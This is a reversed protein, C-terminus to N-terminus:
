AARKREHFTVGPVPARAGRADADALSQILAEFAEPQRVVYHNLAARRDTVEAQWYTRLGTASRDIRNAAGNLKVAQELQVEAAFREELDSSNRLADQAAQQLAEAEIRAKRAAEDKARQRAERYPTLADKLASTALDCRDLLPKWLAQIAKGAEDHPRKEEARKEDALKRAARLEDLLADLAAEQEDTQIAGCAIATSAEEFLDEFLDEIHLAMTASAPPANHGLM